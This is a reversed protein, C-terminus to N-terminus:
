ELQVNLSREYLITTSTEAHVVGIGVHVFPTWMCHLHGVMALCFAFFHHQFHNSGEMILPLWPLELVWLSFPQASEQYQPQFTWLSLSHQLFCAWQSFFPDLQPSISLWWIDCSASSQPSAPVPRVRTIFCLALWIPTWMEIGSSTHYTYELAEFWMIFWMYELLQFVRSNDFIAVVGHIGDLM